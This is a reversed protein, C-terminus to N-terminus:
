TLPWAMATSPPREDLWGTVLCSYPLVATYDPRRMAAGISADAAFESATIGAGSPGAAVIAAAGAVAVTGAMIVAVTTVGAANMVAAAIVIMIDTVTATVIARRM